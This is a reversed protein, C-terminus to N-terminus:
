KPSFTKSPDLYVANEPGYSIRGFYADRRTVDALAQATQDILRPDPDEVPYGDRVVYVILEADPNPRPRGHRRAVRRALNIVLDTDEIPALGVEWVGASDFEFDRFCMIQRLGRGVEDLTMDTTTWIAVNM